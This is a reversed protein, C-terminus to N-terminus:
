HVQKTINVELADQNLIATMLYTFEYDEVLFKCIELAARLSVQLGYCTSDPLFDCKKRKAEDKWVDLYVLFEEIIQFFFM